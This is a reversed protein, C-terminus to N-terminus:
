ERKKKKRLQHEVTMKAGSEPGVARKAGGQFRLSGRGKRRVERGTETVDGKAHAL